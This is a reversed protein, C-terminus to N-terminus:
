KNTINEFLDVLKQDLLNRLDMADCNWCKFNSDNWKLVDVENTLEEGTEIEFVQRRNIFHTRQPWQKLEEYFKEHKKVESRLVSITPITM